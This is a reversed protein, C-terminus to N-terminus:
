VFNGKIPVTSQNFKMLRKTWRWGVIIAGWFIGFPSWTIMTCLRSPRIRCVWKEIELELEKVPVENWIVSDGLLCKETISMQSKIRQEAEEQSLQSDRHRLRGIQTEPRCGVVVVLGCFMWLPGELLLPIDLVIIRECRIWYGFCMWAIEKAVAPHTIENLVKREKANSFVIRGLAPRDIQGDQLLISSGFHKVIKQYAPKGPQVVERALVDADIVPIQHNKSLLSSVTSKGTAISGTLGVILM